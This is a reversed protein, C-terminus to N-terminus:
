EIFRFLVDVAKVKKMFQMTRGIYYYVVVVIIIIVYIMIINLLLIPVKVINKPYHDYNKIINEGRPYTIIIITCCANCVASYAM